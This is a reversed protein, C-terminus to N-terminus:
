PRAPATEFLRWYFLAAAQSTSAVLKVRLWGCRPGRMRPARLVGCIHRTHRSLASRFPQLRGHILRRLAEPTGLLNSDQLGPVVQRRRVGASLVLLDGAEALKRRSSFKFWLKRFRKKGKDNTFDHPMM